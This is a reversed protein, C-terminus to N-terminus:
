RAVPLTPPISVISLTLMPTQTLIAIIPPMALPLQVKFLMQRPSAGFSRSAEILAAPVQNLGLITLRIIPPLAFIITVLVGPVN